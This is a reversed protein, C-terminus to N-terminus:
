KASVSVALPAALKRAFETLYANWSEITTFDNSLTWGAGSYYTISKGLEAQALVLVHINNEQIQKLASKPMVLGTGLSGVEPKETTQGWLSIWGSNKDASTTTGKRKVVGAVLPVTGKASGSKFTTEIKNLNVGAGLSIRVVQSIAKGEFVVAGYTLEFVAVLPGTAIIRYKQFV